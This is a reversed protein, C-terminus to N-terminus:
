DDYNTICNRTSLTIYSYFLWIEIFFINNLFNRKSQKIKKKLDTSKILDSIFSYEQSSIHKRLSSINFKEDVFLVLNPNKQKLSTNRYNINIPM